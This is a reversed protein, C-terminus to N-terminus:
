SLRRSAVALAVFGIAWAILLGGWGRGLSNIEAPYVVSVAGLMVALFAAAAVFLQRTERDLGATLAFAVMTSLYLAFGGYFWRQAVADDLTVQNYLMTGAVAVAPVALVIGAALTLTQPEVPPIVRERAPYTGYVGAVLLLGVAYLGVSLLPASLLFAMPLLAVLLVLGVLLLRFPGITKQPWTWVVLSSIFMVSMFAGAAVGNIPTLDDFLPPFWATLLYYGEFLWLGAFLAVVIGM